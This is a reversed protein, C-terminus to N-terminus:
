VLRVPATYKHGRVPWFFSQSLISMVSFLSICPQTQTSIRSSPPPHAWLILCFQGPLKQNSRIWCLLPFGLPCHTVHSISFCALAPATSLGLFALSCTSQRMIGRQGCTVRAVMNYFVHPQPHSHGALTRRASDQYTAARRPEPM